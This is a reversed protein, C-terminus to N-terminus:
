SNPPGHTPGVDLRMGMVSLTATDARRQDRESQWNAAVGEGKAYARQRVVHDQPLGM